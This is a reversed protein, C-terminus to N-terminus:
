SEEAAPSSKPIHPAMLEAASPNEGARLRELLTPSAVEQLAAAREDEDPIMEFAIARAEGLIRAYQGWETGYQAAIERRIQKTLGPALGGTSVAIQLPERNVVAPVIFSCMEPADLVNLLCGISEAEARVANRIVPEASVCVAIAAGTLDGTAYERHEVTLEGGSEAELLQEGPEASIVTVDAGYRNLQRAKRLAQDGGGVIIALRADLDLYVPYYRKPKEAM